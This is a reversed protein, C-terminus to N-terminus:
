TPVVPSEVPGCRCKSTLCPPLAILGSLNIGGGRGNVQDVTLDIVKRREENSLSAFEGTSGLCIVGHIREAIYWDINARFGKEDLRQDQTFPTVMVVFTGRLKEM